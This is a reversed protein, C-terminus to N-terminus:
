DEIQSYSISNRQGIKQKYIKKVIEINDVKSKRKESKLTENTTLQYPNARQNRSEQAHIQGPPSAGKEIFDSREHSQIQLSKMKARNRQPSRANITNITDFMKSLSKIPKKQASFAMKDEMNQVVQKIETLKEFKEQEKEKM